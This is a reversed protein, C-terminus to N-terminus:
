NCCNGGGINMATLDSKDGGAPCSIFWERSFTDFQSFLDSTKLCRWHLCFTPLAVCFVIVKLNM